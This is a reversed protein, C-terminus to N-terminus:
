RRITLEQVFLARAANFASRLLRFSMICLPRGHPTSATPALSSSRTTRYGKRWGLLRLIGGLFLQSFLKIAQSDCSDTALWTVIKLLNFNFRCTPLTPFNAYLIHMLDKLLFFFTERYLNLFRFFFLKSIPQSFSFPLHRKFVNRSWYRRYSGNSPQNKTTPLGSILKSM